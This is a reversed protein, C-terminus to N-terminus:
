PLEKLLATRAEAAGQGDPELALYARFHQDVRGPERGHERLLSALAFHARAESPARTLVREYQEIAAAELQTVEYLGALLLRLEVQDPHSRLHEGAADIALRYQGDAIYLRMLWPLTQQTSAGAQSAARLYQQARLGDGIREAASAVSLLQEASLGAPAAPLAETQPLQVHGCGVAAVLVLALLRM